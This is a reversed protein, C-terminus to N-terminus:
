AHGAVRQRALPPNLNRSPLEPRHTQHWSGRSQNRFCSAHTNAMRNRVGATQHLRVRRVMRRRRWRTEVLTYPRGAGAPQHKCFAEEITSVCQQDEGRKRRWAAGNFDGAVMDVQEQQMAEPGRKRDISTTLHSWHRDRRLDGDARHLM